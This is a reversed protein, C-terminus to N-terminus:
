EKLAEFGKNFLFILFPGFLISLTEEFGNVSDQSSFFEGSLSELLQSALVHTQLASSLPFYVIRTDIRHYKGGLEVFDHSYQCFSSVANM